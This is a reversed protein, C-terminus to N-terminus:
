EQVVAAAVVVVAAALVNLFATIYGHSITTVRAIVATAIVVAVKEAAIAEPNYNYDYNNYPEEPVAIAVIVIAAASLFKFGM